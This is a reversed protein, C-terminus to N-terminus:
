KNDLTGFVKQLIPTVRASVEKRIKLEEGELKLFMGELAQRTLFDDLDTNVPTFGALRGAISNAVSNWKRTLTTWSEQASIGAIIEKNTSTSIKPKYLSYLENWTTKRLYTTAANDTGHLINYGDTITMQTVSSVFIPAVERAADEAARNINLIVNEILQEGGPIKGINEIIVKAEEPLPIKVAPDGYYGNESSLKEAAVRAGVTLAEKLGGIIDGETLEKVASATQLVNMLEACGTLLLLSLFLAAVRYKLTVIKTSKM